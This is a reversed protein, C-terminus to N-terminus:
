IGLTEVFYIANEIAAELSTFPYKNNGNHMGVSYVDPIELRYNINQQGPIKMYATYKSPCIEITDPIKKLQLSSKAEIFATHILEQLDKNGPETCVCSIVTYDSLTTNYDSTIVYALGISSDTFKKPRKINIKSKYIFSFSPHKDYECNKDYNIKIINQLQPLPMTFVLKDYVYNKKTTMLIKYQPLLKIAKVDTVVNVDLDCLKQRILEMVDCTPQLLQANLNQYFLQFMKGCTWFYPGKGDALNTIRSIIPDDAIDSLRKDPNIIGNYLIKFMLSLSLQQTYNTVDWKYSKYVNKIGLENLFKFYNHYRTSYMKPSHESFVPKNYVAHCGGVKPEQELITVDHGKQKMKYAIFLGTPGAGVILVKM